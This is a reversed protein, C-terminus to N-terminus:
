IERNEEHRSITRFRLSFTIAVERMGSSPTEAVLRSMEVLLKWIQHRAYGIQPQPTSMCSIFGGDVLSTPGHQDSMASQVAQISRRIGFLAQNM